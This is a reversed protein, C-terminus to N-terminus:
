GGNLYRTLVYIYNESLRKAAASGWGFGPVMAALSLSGGVNDGRAFALAASGFDAVEGVVPILGAADLGTQLGDLRRSWANAVAISQQEVGYRIGELGQTFQRHIANQEIIADRYTQRIGNAADDLQQQRYWGALADDLWANDDYDLSQRLYTSPASGHLQALYQTALGTPDTANMPDNHVYAYVNVGDALGSPDESLFKGTAPDYPRAPTGYLGTEEDRTMGAYGLLTDVKPAHESLLKGFSDYNWHNKSKGTSDVLDRVTGQYDALPWLTGSATEDALIQDVAPGHLYRHTITPPNFDIPVNLELVVDDGDFIYQTIVQPLPGGGDSDVRKLIRRDNLDYVYEVKKTITGGSATRYTASALRDRVDWSYSIHEGTRSKTQVNGRTSYTYTYTGDSTLRNQITPVSGGSTRNGNKDFAHAEDSALGARNATM